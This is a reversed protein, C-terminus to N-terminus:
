KHKQMSVGFRGYAVHFLESCGSNPSPERQALNPWFSSQLLLHKTGSTRKLFSISDRCGSFSLKGLVQGQAHRNHSVMLHSRVQVEHAVFPDNEVTTKGSGPPAVVKGDMELRRVHNGRLILINWRELM